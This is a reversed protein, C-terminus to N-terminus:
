RRLLLLLGDFVGGLAPEQRCHDMMPVNASIPIDGGVPSRISLGVFTIAALLWLMWAFRWLWKIIPPWRAPRVAGLFRGSYALATCFVLTAPLSGLAALEYFGMARSRM